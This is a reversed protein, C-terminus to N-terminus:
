SADKGAKGRAHWGQSMFRTAPILYEGSPLTDTPLGVKACYAEFLEREKSEDYIPQPPTPTCVTSVTCLQRTETNKRGQLLDYIKEECHQWLGIEVEGDEEFKHRYQWAVPQAAQPSAPAGALAEKIAVIKDSSMRVVIAPDDLLSELFGVPVLKYSKPINM